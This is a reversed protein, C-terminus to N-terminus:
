GSVQKLDALLVDRAANVRATLDASGGRDPHVQSVLRRHAARITESDAGPPVGLVGRAEDLGLKPAAPRRQWTYLGATAGGLAIAPILAGSVLERFALIGLALPALKILLAMNLQNTFKLYALVAAGLLVLLGM